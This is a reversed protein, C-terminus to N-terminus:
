GREQNDRKGQRMRQERTVREQPRRGMLWRRASGQKMSQKRPFHSLDPPSKAPVGLPAGEQIQLLHGTSPQPYAVSEPHSPCKSGLMARTRFISNSSPISLLSSPSRPDCCTVIYLAKERGNTREHDCCSPSTLWSPVISGLWLHPSPSESLALPNSLICPSLGLAM